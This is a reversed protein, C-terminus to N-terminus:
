KNENKKQIVSLAQKYPIMNENTNNQALASQNGPRKRTKSTTNNESKVINDRSQKQSLFNRNTRSATKRM